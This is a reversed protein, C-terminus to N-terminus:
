VYETEGSREEASPVPALLAAASAITITLLITRNGSSLSRIGPCIGSALSLLFGALVAIGVNRNRRSPPIIIALFMGFLAVGLASVIRVPLLAGMQIGLATGAAWCPSACCLAGFSYFPNIWGEQAITIGFIEDTITFGLLLRRGTGTQPDLRQGLSASMLMYRINMVISVLAMELFTGHVAIQTFGAYQGASANTLISAMFGQFVTIGADRAAIGLSFAVAFYGLGIPIGDIFGKRFATRNAERISHKETKM